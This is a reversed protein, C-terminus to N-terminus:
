KDLSSDHLINQFTDSYIFKELRIRHSRKIKQAKEQQHLLLTAHNIHKVYKNLIIPALFVLKHNQKELTVCASLCPPNKNDDFSLNYKDLLDTRFIACHSRLYLIQQKKNFADGISKILQRHWPKFELKWSGVAAVNDNKFYRLLFDLYDPRQILTDTHILLVYPTNVKQMGFELAAAHHKVSSKVNSVNPYELLEIFSLSRLYETSEDQSDNDVVIIKAKNFNTFKRLLRLCVKTLKPTKYNVLLISVQQM